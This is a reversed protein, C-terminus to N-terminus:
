TAGAHASTGEVKQRLHARARFLRSRVTGVPVGLVRAAEDYALGELLVLTVVERMDASLEQLGDRLRRVQDRRGALTEPSDDESAKLQLEDDSVFEYRRHPSRRHFNRVMNMAIGYLWTSLAADGRFSALTRHAELFVQQTVEEADARHGLHKLVFRFLRVNHDRVLRRFEAERDSGAAVRSPSISTEM